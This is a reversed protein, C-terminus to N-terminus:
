SVEDKPYKVRNCESLGFNYVTKAKRLANPKFGFRPLGINKFWCPLKLILIKDLEKLLLSCM